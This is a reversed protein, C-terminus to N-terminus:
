DQIKLLASTGFREALSLAWSGLGRPCSLRHLLPIRWTWDPLGDLLYCCWEMAVILIRRLCGVFRM